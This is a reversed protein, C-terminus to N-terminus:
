FRNSNSLRTIFKTRITKGARGPQNAMSTQVGLSSGLSLISDPIM